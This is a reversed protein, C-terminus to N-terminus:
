NCLIKFIKLFISECVKILVECVYTCNELMSSFILIYRQFCMETSSRFYSTEVFLLIRILIYLDYYKGFILNLKLFIFFVEYICFMGLRINGIKVLFQSIFFIHSNFIFIVITNVKKTINNNNNIIVDKFM